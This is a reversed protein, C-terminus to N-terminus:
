LHNTKKKDTSYSSIQHDKKKFKRNQRTHISMPVFAPKEELAAQMIESSTSSSPARPQRQSPYSYYQVYQKYQSLIGIVQYENDQSRRTTDFMLSAVIKQIKNREALECSGTYNAFFNNLCHELKEQPSTEPTLQLMPILTFVALVYYYNYNEQALSFEHLKQTIFGFLMPDQYLFLIDIMKLLPCIQPLIQGTLILALNQRAYTSVFLYEINKLYIGIDLSKIEEAHKLLMCWDHSSISKDLQQSFRIFRMMLSPDSEFRKEIDGLMILYPAHLDQKKELLDYVAGDDKCIFTNISLDREKLKDELKHWPECWLDIKGLKFKRPELLEQSFGSKIHLPLDSAKCNVIIDVDEHPSLPIGLLRNRVFGGSFYYEIGATKLTKLIYLTEPPLTIHAFPMLGDTAPLQLTSLEQERESFVASQSAHLSSVQIQQQEKEKEFAQEQRTYHTAELERIAKEHRVTIGQINQMHDNKLQSLALELKQQLAEIEKHLRQDCKEQHTKIAKENSATLAQITLEHNERMSKLKQEHRIKLKSAARNKTTGLQQTTKKFEAAFTREQASIDNQYQSQITEIAQSHMEKLSQIESEHSKQLTQIKKDYQKKKRTKFKEINKEHQAQEIDLANKHRFTLSQIHEQFNNELDLSIQSKEKQHTQRMQAKKEEFLAEIRKTETLLKQEYEARLSELSRHHAKEEIKLESEHSHILTIMRPDLAVDQGASFLDEEHKLPASSNNDAEPTHNTEEKILKSPSVETPELILESLQDAVSDIFRNFNVDDETEATEIRELLPPLSKSSSPQQAQSAKAKTPLANKFDNGLDDALKKFLALIIQHYFINDLTSSKATKYLALALSFHAQILTATKLENPLIKYQSFLALANRFQMTLPLITQTEAEKDLALKCENVTQCIYEIDYHTADTFPSSVAPTWDQEYFFSLTGLFPLWTNDLVSGAIQEIHEYKDRQWKYIGDIFEISTEPSVFRDKGEYSAELFSQAIKHITGAEKSRKCSYLFYAISQYCLLLECTKQWALQKDSVEECPLAQLYIQYEEAYCILWDAKELLYVYCDYYNTASLKCLIFYDTLHSTAQTLDVFMNMMSKQRLNLREEGYKELLTLVTQWVNVKEYGLLFLHESERVKKNFLEIQKEPNSEIQGTQIQRLRQTILAYPIEHKQLFYTEITNILSKLRLRVFNEHKSLFSNLLENRRQTNHLKTSNIFEVTQAELTKLQSFIQSVEPPLGSQEPNELAAELSIHQIVPAVVSTNLSTSAQQKAQHKKILRKRTAGHKSM